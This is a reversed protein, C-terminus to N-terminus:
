VDLRARISLQFQEASCFRNKEDAITFSYAFSKFHSAVSLFPFASGFPSATLRRLMKKADETQDM